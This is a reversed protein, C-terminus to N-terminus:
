GQTDLANILMSISTVLLIFFSFYPQAPIESSGIFVMAIIYVTYVGIPIAIIPVPKFVFILNLFLFLISLVFIELM